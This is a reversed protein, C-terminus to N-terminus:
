KGFFIAFFVYSIRTKKYFCSFANPLGLYTILIAGNGIHGNEMENSNPQNMQDNGSKMIINRFVWGSYHTSKNSHTVTEGKPDYEVANCGSCGSVFSSGGAGGLELHKKEELEEKSTEVYGGRYGGGAGGISGGTGSQEGYSISFSYGDQGIGFEGETQTGGKVHQNKAEGELTGASGGYTNQSRDNSQGGAGAGAVIIRSMLGSLSNNNIIRVDTSGGGGAASEPYAEEGKDHIDVGGQGGGNYGGLSTINEAISSQDEGKGGIFLYFTSTTTVPLIGSVYAGHGGSEQNITANNLYRANGGQAGWLEFKYKGPQLQVTIPTCIHFDKCPYPFFAQNGQLSFSSSDGDYNFELKNHILGDM